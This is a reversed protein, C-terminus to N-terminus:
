KVNGAMQRNYQAHLSLSARIKAIAVTTQEKKCHIKKEKEQKGVTM